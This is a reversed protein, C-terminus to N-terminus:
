SGSFFFDVTVTVVDRYPGIRVNQRERILGFVPLNQTQSYTKTYTTSVGSRPDTFKNTPFTTNYLGNGWIRLHSSERYLNYKLRATPGTYGEDHALVRSDFNSNSNLGASLKVTYFLDKFKHFDDDEDDDHLVFDCTVSIQGEVDVPDDYLYTDFIIARAVVLCAPVRGEDDDNDDDNDSGWASIAALFLLLTIALLAKSSKM